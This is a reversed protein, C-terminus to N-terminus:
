AFSSQPRPQEMPLGHGLSPLRPNSQHNPFAGASTEPRRNERGEGSRRSLGEPMRHSDSAGGTMVPTKSETPRKSLSLTGLMSTHRVHALRREDVPDIQSGLASWQQM